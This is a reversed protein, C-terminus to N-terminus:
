WFIIQLVVFVVAVVTAWFAPRQYLVIGARDSLDRQAAMGFAAKSTATPAPSSVGCPASWTDNTKEAVGPATCTSSPLRAM